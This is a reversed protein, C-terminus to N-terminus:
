RSKLGSCLSGRPALSRCPVPLLRLHSHCLPHISNEDGDRRERRERLSMKAANEAALCLSPPLISTAIIAGNELKVIIVVLEIGFSFSLPSASITRMIIQRLCCCSVESRDELDAVVPSQGFPKKVGRSAPSILGWGAM